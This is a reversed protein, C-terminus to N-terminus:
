KFKSTCPSKLKYMHKLITIALRRRQGKQIVRSKRQAAHTCIINLKDNIQFVNKGLNKFHIQYYYSSINSVPVAHVTLDM